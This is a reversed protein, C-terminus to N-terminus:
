RAGRVAAVYGAYDLLDAKFLRIGEGPLEVLGVGPTMRPVMAVHDPTANPHLMRIADANDVRMTIRTGLNSREAGGVISADMRQAILLLRVGVKAGEQVLRRVNRQIRPAVRDAPKAGADQAEAASLTGPYEELVVLLLPTATDFADLKDLDANLLAAIRRDMEAVIRDLTDAAATMDAAGLARWEAHPHNRWPNLLIGTPDVGCIAVGTLRALPALLSYTLVSKGSRSMGQIAIHWSAGLDLILNTGDEVRGVRVPLGTM